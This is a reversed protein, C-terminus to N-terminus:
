KGTKAMKRVGLVDNGFQELMANFEHHRELMSMHGCGELMVLEAKPLHEALYESADGVTLRDKTGGVVFVPITIEGLVDRVDFSRYSKMLDFIVDTPTEVLMDYTFDIQKASGNPGFGALSVAMFVTDTPRIIRRLRDLREHQSGLADFPRRTFREVHSLAAGGAITEFAPRYTTNALFLGKIRSGVLEPHRHCLDLAIMGGISHGVVIVESLGSDEIVALLDDALTEITFEASGKPQSVGHGRLDYFVLRHGGIGPFQYHWLDTRLASGHVFVIGRKTKSGVEEIFLHAGDPLELKRTRIGRRSGFDEGAEPDTKRRRNVAVRQAVLGAGLGAAAGAVAIFGKARSM